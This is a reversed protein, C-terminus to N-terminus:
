YGMERVYQVLPDAIERYTFFRNKDDKPRRWSGLHVEYIIMPSDLSNFRARKENWESDHWGYGSIDWVKSATQPVVETAFAYPDAKEGRATDYRSDVAYKYLAGQAVNPIFCEWIGSGENLSMPNQGVKWANWEGIVSVERANPAWVAFHTGKVGNQEILHA